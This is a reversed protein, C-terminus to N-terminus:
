FVVEGRPSAAPAAGAPVEGAPKDPAAATPTAPAPPSVLTLEIRRNAQQGEATKNDGVPDFEAHGTAEMRDAPLGAAVLFQVATAAYASSLDWNSRFKDGGIPLDDTHGGIEIRGPWSAKLITAVETLTAKGPVSLDASGRGYLGHTRLRLVLTEGRPVVELKKADVLPKFLTTLSEHAARRRDAEAKIKATDGVQSRLAAAEDKLVALQKELAEREAGMREIKAELDAARARVQAADAELAQYRTWGYGAGGISAGILLVLFIWGLVRM